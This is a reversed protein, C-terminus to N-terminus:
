RFRYGLKVGLALPDAAVMSQGIRLLGADSALDIWRLDASMALRESVRWEAGLEAAAGLSRHRGHGTTFTEGFDTEAFYVTRNLGAGAYAFVAGLAAIPVRLTLMEAGDNRARQAVLLVQDSAQADSDVPSSSPRSLWEPDLWDPGDDAAVALSSAACAILGALLSCKSTANM